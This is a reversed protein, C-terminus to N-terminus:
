KELPRVGSQVELFTQDQFQIQDRETECFFLIQM